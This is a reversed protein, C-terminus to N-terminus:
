QNLFLSPSTNLPRFHLFIVLIRKNFDYHSEAFKICACVGSSISLRLLYLSGTQNSQNNIDCIDRTSVISRCNIFTDKLCATYISIQVSSCVKSRTSKVMDGKVTRLKHKGIELGQMFFCMFILLTISWTGCRKHM